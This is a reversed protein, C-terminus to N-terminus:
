TFCNIDENKNYLSLYKGKKIDSPNIAGQLDLIIHHDELKNILNKLDPMFNGIVILKSNQVLKDLNEEKIDKLFPLYNNFEDVDMYPDYVKINYGKDFLRVFGTETLKNILTLTPSGRIDGSTGDYKFSLGIIGIERYNTSLIIKLARNIHEQNSKDISDILPINLGEKHAMNVLASTDKPLCSGGYAFGPKLYKKSINLKNDNSFVEMLEQPNIELRSAISGIENAFSIKLAHWSNNVYKIMEAVKENTLIIQGNVGWYMMRIKDITENDSSGIVMLSPNFFDEIASGERLFEPNMVIKIEKDKIKNKLFDITGPSVTSRILIIYPKKVNSIIDNFVMHVRSNDLRDDYGLPTGVCIIGIDSKDVAENIDTTAFINKGAHKKLLDGLGPEKIPPIGLNIEDVKKKKIDNCIVQHGLEALCVASVSGVYGMGFIAIKMKSKIHIM